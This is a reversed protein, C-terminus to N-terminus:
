HNSNEVRGALIGMYESTQETQDSIAALLWLVEGIAALMLGQFGVAGGVVLRAILILASRDPIVGPPLLKSVTSGLIGSVGIGIGTMIVVVGVIMFVAAIARAFAKM